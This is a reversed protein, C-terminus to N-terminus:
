NMFAEIDEAEKIIDKTLLAYGDNTVLVNDEIRIGIGEKEFYFVPNLPLSM